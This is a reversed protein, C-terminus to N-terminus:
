KRVTTKKGPAYEDTSMSFAARDALMWSKMMLRGSCYLVM